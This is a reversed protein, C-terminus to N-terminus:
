RNINDFFVNSSVDALTRRIDEAQEPTPKATLGVTVFGTFQGYHPPISIRCLYPVRSALSPGLVGKNEYCVFEGNITRVVSANYNDDTGFLPRTTGNKAFRDSLEFTVVPDDSYWFVVDAENLRINASTVTILHIYPAVDVFTKLRVQVKDKVKLRVHELPRPLTTDNRTDWISSRNEFITLSVIWVLAGLTVMGLRKFTIWTLLKQIWPLQNLM